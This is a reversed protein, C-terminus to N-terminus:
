LSKQNVAKIKFGNIGSTKVYEISFGLDLIIKKIDYTYTIHELEEGHLEKSFIRFSEPSLNKQWAKFLERKKNEFEEKPFNFGMDELYLTGGILLTDKIRRIAEAKESIHHLAYSSFAYSASGPEIEFDLFGSHILEINPYNGSVIDQRALDLLENSIDVGIGKLIYPSLSLLTRCTGCGFDILIDDKTIGLKKALYSGNVPPLLELFKLYSGLYKKDLWLSEFENTM